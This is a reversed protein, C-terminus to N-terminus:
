ATGQYTALLVSSDRDSIERAGLLTRMLRRTQQRWVSGTETFRTLKVGEIRPCMIEKAKPHSLVIKSVNPHALPTLTNITLRYQKLWSNKLRNLMVCYWACNIHFHTTTTFLNSLYLHVEVLIATTVFGAERKTLSSLCEAIEMLVVFLCYHVFACWCQPM